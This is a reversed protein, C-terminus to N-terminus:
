HMPRPPRIWGKCNVVFHQMSKQLRQVHNLFILAFLLLDREGCADVVQRVLVSKCISACESIFGGVIILSIEADM